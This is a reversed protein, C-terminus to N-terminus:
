NIVTLSSYMTSIIFVETKGAYHNVIKCDQDLEPDTGNFSKM